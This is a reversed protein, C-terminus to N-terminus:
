NNLSNINILNVGSEKISKALKIDSPMLTERDAHKTLLGAVQFISILYSEIILQISRLANPSFRAEDIYDQAIERILRDFPAVPFVLIDSIQQQKKINRAAVTGPKYRHPKTSPGRVRKVKIDVNVQNDQDNQDDDQDQANIELDNDEDNGIENPQESTNKTTIRYLRNATKPLAVIAQHDTELALEVHNQTITVVRYYQAIISIKSLLYHLKDKAIDRSLDYVNKSFRKVSGARFLLRKFAPNTLGTINDRLVRKTRGSRPSNPGVSNNSTNSTNSFDRNNM